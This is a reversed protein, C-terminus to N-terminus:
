FVSAFGMAGNQESPVARALRMVVEGKLTGFSVDLGQERVARAIESYMMNGIIGIMCFVEREENRQM